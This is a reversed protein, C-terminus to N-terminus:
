ARESVLEGYADPDIDDPFTPAWDAPDGDAYAAEAESRSGFSWEGMVVGNDVLLVSDYGNNTRHQLTRTM